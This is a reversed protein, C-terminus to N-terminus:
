TSAGPAESHGGLRRLFRRPPSRHGITWIAEDLRERARLVAPDTRELEELEAQFAAWQERTWRRGPM